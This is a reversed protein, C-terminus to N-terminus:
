CTLSSVSTMVPQAVSAGASSYHLATTTLLHAEGSAPGIVTDGASARRSLSHFGVLTTDRRVEFM